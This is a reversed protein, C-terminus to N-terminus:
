KALWLWVFLALLALFSLAFAVGGTTRGAREDFAGVVRGLVGGVVAGGILALFLMMIVTGIGDAAM